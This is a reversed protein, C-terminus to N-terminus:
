KIKELEIYVIRRAQFFCRKNGRRRDKLFSETFERVRRERESFM